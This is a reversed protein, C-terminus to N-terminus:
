GHARRGAALAALFQAVEDTSALLFEADTGAGADPEGVRVTVARPYAARLERFADEDTRDDGIYITSGAPPTGLEHVWIVAATGKNIRIPPRLELVEKGRTVVLGQEEAVSMVRDTIRAVQERAALRYHVSLTWKKNEVVVGDIAAIGNLAAAADRVPGLYARATPESLVEGAEGLIEFGHNGIVGVNPVPVLRRADAVSRGTVVAVHTGPLLTLDGILRQTAAPVAAEEPRPAIPALTGDIDLLVSLPTGGLRTGIAAPMPLARIM